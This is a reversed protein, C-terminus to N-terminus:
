INLEKLAIQAIGFTICSEVGDNLSWIASLGSWAATWKLLTDFSIAAERSIIELQRSLRGKKLAVEANPNCLINVYDFTREGIIGKPDIALWGRHTSHLINGHHLDGHLAVIDQQNKLLGKAIHACKRFVEGFKDAFLFLDGFWNELPILGPISENKKCSHLLNAVNCIIQTAEDDRNNVAMTTLLSNDPIRQMLIADNDYEFVKVAGIGNWWIMLKAGRKEEEVMFIKLMAKKNKYLVPQLLSSPTSFIEGDPILNWLSTYYLLSNEIDIRMKRKREKM